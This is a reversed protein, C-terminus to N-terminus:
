HRSPDLAARFTTESCPLGLNPNSVTRPASSGMKQDVIAASLIARCCVACTSSEALLYAKWEVRAARARASTRSAAPAGAKGSFVPARGDNDRGIDAEEFAEESVFSGGAAAEM